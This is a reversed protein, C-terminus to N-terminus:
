KLFLVYPFVRRCILNPNEWLAEILSQLHVQCSFKLQMKKISQDQAELSFSSQVPVIVGETFFIVLDGKHIKGKLSWFSHM